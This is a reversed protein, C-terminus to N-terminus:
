FETDVEEKKKEKGKEEAHAGTLPPALLALSVLSPLLIRMPRNGIETVRRVSVPLRMLPWCRRSHSIGSFNAIEGTGGGRRAVRAIAALKALTTRLIVWM